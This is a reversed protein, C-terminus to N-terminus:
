TGIGPYIVNHVVCHVYSVGFLWVVSVVVGSLTLRQFLWRGFMVLFKNPTPLNDLSSHAFVSPATLQGGAAREEKSM